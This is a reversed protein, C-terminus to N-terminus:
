VDLPGFDICGGAWPRGVPFIAIYEVRFPSSFQIFEDTMRQTLILSQSGKQGLCVGALAAEARLSGGHSKM